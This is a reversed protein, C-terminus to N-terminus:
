QIKPPIEKQPSPKLVQHNIFIQLAEKEQPNLKLFYNKNHVLKTMLDMVDKGFCYLRSKNLDYICHNTHGEVLFVKPFFNFFQSSSIKPSIIKKKKM